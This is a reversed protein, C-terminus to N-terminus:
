MQDMTREIFGVLYDRLEDIEDTYEDVRDPNIRVYISRAGNEKDVRVKNLVFGEQLADTYDAHVIVNRIRGAKGLRDALSDINQTEDDTHPMNRNLFRLLRLLANAKQSFGMEGTLIWAKEDTVFSDSILERLSWDLAADLSNFSVVFWGISSTIIEMYADWETEEMEEPADENIGLQRQEFPDFRM